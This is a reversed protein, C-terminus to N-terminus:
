DPLPPRLAWSGRFWIQVDAVDRTGYVYAAFTASGSNGTTPDAVGRQSSLNSSAQEFVCLHGPDADPLAMTGACGVPVPDGAKIYHVTPASPLNVGFSIPSHVEQGTTGVLGAFGGRILTPYPAYQADSELKTYYRADSQAKTYHDGLALGLSADHAAKTEYAANSQVKTYYRKDARPKIEQKWVSAWNTALSAGAPAVTTLAAGALLGAVAAIVIPGRRSEFM